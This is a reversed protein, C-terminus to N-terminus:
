MEWGQSESTLEQQQEKQMAELEEETISQLPGAPRMADSCIMCRPMGETSLIDKRWGCSKCRLKLLVM